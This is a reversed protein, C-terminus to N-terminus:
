GIRSRRLRFVALFFPGGILATLVGVPLEGSRLLTRACADALVLLIAGLLASAPFLVSHRPGVILRCLHPVVLGVFGIIGSFSVAAGALLTGGMLNIVKVRAVDVGSQQAIGEGLALIDLARAHLLLVGGGVVFVTALLAMHATGLSPDNLSGMIWFVIATLSEEASLAKVLGIVASLCSSVVIGALVLGAIAPEGDVRALWYALVVALTAGFFASLPLTWLGLVSFGSAIAVAAGLAGGSSVGLTFPSALPNRLLGQFAVGACALMAGVLTGVLVRPLRIRMLIQDHIQDYGAALAAKSGPESPERGAAAGALVRLATSPGLGDSQGLGCSVVVAALLAVSLVVLVFLPTATRALSM